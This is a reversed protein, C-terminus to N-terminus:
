FATFLKPTISTLQWTNNVRKYTVLADLLYRTGWSLDRLRMTVDYELVDGQIQKSIVTFSDFEGLASFQWNLIGSSIQHGILDAKIQEDSPMPTSCSTLILGILSLITIILVGFKRM